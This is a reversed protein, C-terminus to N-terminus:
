TSVEKYNTKVCKKVKDETYNIFILNINTGTLLYETYKGLYNIYHYVDSYHIIYVNDM